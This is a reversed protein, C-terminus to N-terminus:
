ILTHKLKNYKTKYKLYKKYFPFTKQNFTIGRYIMDPNCNLNPYKTGLCLDNNLKYEFIQEKLNNIFNYNIIEHTKYSLNNYKNITVYIANNIIENNVNIINISIINLLLRKMSLFSRLQNIELRIKNNTDNNGFLLIVINKSLSMSATDEIMELIKKFDKSQHQYTNIIIFISNNKNIPGSYGYINYDLGPIYM